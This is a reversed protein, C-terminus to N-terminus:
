TDISRVHGVLEDMNNMDRLVVDLVAKAAEVEGCCTSLRM